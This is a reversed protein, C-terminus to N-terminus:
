GIRQNPDVAGYAVALLLELTISTIAVCRPCEADSLDAGHPISRLPDMNVHNQWVRGVWIVFANAAM